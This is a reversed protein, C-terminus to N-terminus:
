FNKLRILLLFPCIYLLLHFIIFSRYAYTLDVCGFNDKLKVVEWCKVWRLLKLESNSTSLSVASSPTGAVLDNDLM